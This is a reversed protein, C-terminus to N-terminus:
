SNIRGPDGTIILFVSWYICVPFPLFIVFLSVSFIPWDRYLIPIYKFLFAFSIYGTLGVSLLSTVPVVIYKKFLLFM